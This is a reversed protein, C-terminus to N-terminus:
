FDAYNHFFSEIKVDLDLEHLGNFFASDSNLQMFRNTDNELDNNWSFLDETFANFYLTDRATVNGDSDFKKGAQKFEMSLRTKGTGNHAFFLIIDKMPRHDGTLDKRFHTAIDYLNNFKEIPSM